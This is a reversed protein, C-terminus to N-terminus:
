FDGNQVEVLADCIERVAGQGGKRELLIDAMQKVSDVANSPAVGISAVKFAVMDPVDDGVFMAHEQSLNMSTLLETLAQAKNDCGQIVHTIQLEEARRSTIPSDRGTILAVAIGLNQIQKIGFGDQVHFSKYERGDSDFSLMGDTLVGDVDLAVLRIEKLKSIIAPTLWSPNM